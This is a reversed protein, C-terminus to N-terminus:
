IMWGVAGMIWSVVLMFSLVKAARQPDARTWEVLGNLAAHIMTENKHEVIREWWLDPWDPTKDDSFWYIKKWQRKQYDQWGRVLDGHTGWKGGRHEENDKTFLNFFGWAAGVVGLTLITLLRM